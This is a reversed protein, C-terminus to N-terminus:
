LVDAKIVNTTGPEDIPVGAVVVVRDRQAAIRSRLVADKAANIMHDVDNQFDVGCAVTNWYLGVRRLTEASPSVAVIPMPPRFHSVLRATQGSRTCCLIAKAGIEVATTCAGHAIAAAVYDHHHLHKKSLAEGYDIRSESSAAIRAMTTVAEIPYRGTATEGSLMVADTGDFIANAVDAAEARTPRPNEMMSELMQTATIVPRELEVARSIIDKQALPVESLPLDLGLDGRAVMVANTVGLIEDLNDLAEKKELKVVIPIDADHDILFGRLREIERPFRVFSLAFWDVGQDMGFYVDDIDKTTPVEETLKVGPANLGKNSRLVGGIVVECVVDGGAKSKARLEIEGDGMLIHDGPAIDTLLPPYNVSVIKPNGQIERATLTFEDGPELTVQGDAFKGIRMKPGTLDLMIPVHLDREEAQARVAAITAAHETHNGHSMNIRVVNM